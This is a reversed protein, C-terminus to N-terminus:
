CTDETGYFYIQSTYSNEESKKKKVWDTWRGLISYPWNERQATATLSCRLESFQELGETQHQNTAEGM